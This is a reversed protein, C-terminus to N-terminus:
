IHDEIIYAADVVSFSDLWYNIKNKTIEECKNPSTCDYLYNHYSKANISLRTVESIIYCNSNRSSVNIADYGVCLFTLMQCLISSNMSMLSRM